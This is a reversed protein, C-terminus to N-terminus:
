CLVFLSITSASIGTNVKSSAPIGGSRDLRACFIEAIGSALKSRLLQFRDRFLDAL